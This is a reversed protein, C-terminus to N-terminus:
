EDGDSVLLLAKKANRGEQMHPLVEAVADYFATDGGLIMRQLSQLIAGRTGTWGQLLVPRDSFAYLLFEDEPNPLHDLLSSLAHQALQSKEGSMSSSSDLAIGLSLPIRGSTFQTVTQPEGDEYVVFDEAGLGSVFHGQSDLVTANVNVLEVQSHFSTVDPKRAPAQAHLPLGISAIAAFASLHRTV